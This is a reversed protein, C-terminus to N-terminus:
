AGTKGDGTQSIKVASGPKIVMQGDTVVMEGPRVGSKVATFGGDSGAVVLPRTQAKGQADIVFAFTGKPGRNVAANPIVTVHTLTQTSLKVNVFQGPWLRRGGNAFRAKLEVSGTAPDVKNDAISLQGADLLEDSEQSFAQVPLSKRFGDSLRSLQDFQGEPVTFTVAIPQIQNIVVIGSGGTTTAPASSTSSATSQASATSGNASVLNGADVLRVGARGSIPSVITCWNLNVRAQAVTGKDLEVTAKDQAVTAEEDEEVQRAISNVQLLRQYRALDRQAGALVAEDRHLTGLAVELTARYPAPDVQALVQGAHVESGETFNVRLLKGSVQAYITDSTWAQAAGLATIPISLDRAEAKAATVPTPPPAKPAPAPRHFLVWLVLAVALVALGTLVWFRQRRENAMSLEWKRSQGHGNRRMDSLIVEDGYIAGPRAPNCAIKSQRSNDRNGPEIM